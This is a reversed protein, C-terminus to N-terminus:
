IKLVYLTDSTEIWGRWTLEEVIIGKGAMCIM